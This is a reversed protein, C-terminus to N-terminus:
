VTSSLLLSEATTMDDELEALRERLRKTDARPLTDTTTPRREGSANQENNM